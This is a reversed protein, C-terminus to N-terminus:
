NGRGTVGHMKAADLEEAVWLVFDVTLAASAAIQFSRKIGAKVRAGNGVISFPQSGGAINAAAIPVFTLGAFVHQLKHDLIAIQGTVGAALGSVSIIGGLLKWERASVPVLDFPGGGAAAGMGGFAGASELTAAGAGAFVLRGTPFINPTRQLELRPGIADPYYLGPSPTLAVSGLLSDPIGSLDVIKGLQDRTAWTTEEQEILALVERIAPDPHLRLFERWHVPDRRTVVAM